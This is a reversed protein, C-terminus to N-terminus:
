RAGNAEVLVVFDVDQVKARSLIGGAELGGRQAVVIHLYDFDNM